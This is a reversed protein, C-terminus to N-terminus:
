KSRPTLICRAQLVVWSESEFVSCRRMVSALAPITRKKLQELAETAALQFQQLWPNSAVYEPTFAARELLLFDVGYAQIEFCNCEKIRCRRETSSSPLRLESRVLSLIM